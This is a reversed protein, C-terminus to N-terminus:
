YGLIHPQQRNNSNEIVECIAPLPKINTHRHPNYIYIYM